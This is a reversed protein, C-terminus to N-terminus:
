SEHPEEPLKPLVTTRRRHRGRIASFTALTDLKAYDISPMLAPTASQAKIYREHQQKRVEARLYEVMDDELFVWARGIKAGPLVGSAALESATTRNINLFVACEDIDFTRM